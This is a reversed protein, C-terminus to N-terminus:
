RKRDVILLVVGIAAALSSITTVTMATEFDDLKGKVDYIVRDISDVGTISPMTPGLDSLGGFGSLDEDGDDRRADGLVGLYNLAPQSMSSSHIRAM